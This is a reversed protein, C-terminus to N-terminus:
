SNTKSRGQLRGGLDGGLPSSARDGTETGGTGNAEKEPPNERQIRIVLSTEMALTCVWNMGGFFRDWKTLELHVKLCNVKPSELSCSMKCTQTEEKNWLNENVQVSKQSYM